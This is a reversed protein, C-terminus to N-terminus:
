TFSACDMIHIQSFKLYLKEWLLMKTQIFLELNSGVHAALFTGFLWLFSYETEDFLIAAGFTTTERFQNLGLFVGFPRYETNTGFTTDFTIVDGFHAYDLLMKADVWFINTIHEEIDLQLAYQFSPNEAIKDHFYKLMSGAQGFALEKQRKTRLYNKRDRCTCSLNLPGGVQRAAM